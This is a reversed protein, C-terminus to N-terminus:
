HISQMEILDLQIVNTKTIIGTRTESIPKISIYKLNGHSLEQRYEDMLTKYYYNLADQKNTSCLNYYTIDTNNSRKRVIYVTSKPLYNYCHLIISANYHYIINDKTHIYGEEKQMLEM